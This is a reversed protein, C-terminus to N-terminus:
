IAAQQATQEHRSVVKKRLPYRDPFIQEATKKIAKAITQQVPDSISQGTIVRGVHGRSVNNARRAIETQTVHNRLLEIKIETPTV